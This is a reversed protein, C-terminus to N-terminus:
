GQVSVTFGINPNKYFCIETKRKTIPLCSVNFTKDDHMKQNTKSKKKKVAKSKYCHFLMIFYSTNHKFIHYDLCLIFFCM